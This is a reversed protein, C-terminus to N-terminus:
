KNEINHFARLTPMSHGCWIYKGLKTTSTEGPYGDSKM